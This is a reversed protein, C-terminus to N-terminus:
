YLLLYRFYLSLLYIFCILFLIYFHILCLISYLHVHILSVKQKNHYGIYGAICAVTVVTFYTFFHSDDETRINPYRLNKQEFLEQVNENQNGKLFHIYLYTM